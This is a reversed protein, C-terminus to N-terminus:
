LWYWGKQNDIVEEKILRGGEYFYKHEISELITSVINKTIRNGLDDYKYEVYDVYSLQVRKLKSGNWELSLNSGGLNITTPNEFYSYNYIVSNIWIYFM